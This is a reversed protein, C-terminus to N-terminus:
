SPHAADDRRMRSRREQTTEGLTALLLGALLGAAAMLATTRLPFDVLSHLLLVLVGAWAPAAVVRLRRPRNGTLVRWGCWAFLFLAFALALLAPVGGELWWQAYENHAHNIVESRTQRPDQSQAFVPVFSGVGTGLPAHRTGIELTTRAIRQREIDAQKWALASALVVAVALGMAAFQLARAPHSRATRRRLVGMMLAVAVLGVLVLLAAASGNALPVMAVCAATLFAYLWHRHGHEEDRANRRAEIFLALAVVAGLALATGQHNPNVFLGGFNRGWSTYLLLPSGDALSLQFFAFAASALALGLVLQLLRRRWPAGGTLAALFLALAPLLSWLGQETARPWLSAQVGPMAVGAQALDAAVLARAEGGMGVAQPLPLLQWLPVLVIAAACALALALTRTMPVHLLRWAAWGIVPLAFLQLTEDAGTSDVTVGGLAWCLLLLLGAAAALRPSRSERPLDPRLDHNPM